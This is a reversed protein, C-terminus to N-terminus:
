RLSLSAVSSPRYKTMQPEDLVYKTESQESGDMDYEASLVPGIIYSAFLISLCLRKAMPSASSSTLVNPLKSLEDIRKHHTFSERPQFVSVQCAQLLSWDRSTSSLDLVRTIM